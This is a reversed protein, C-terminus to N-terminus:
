KSHQVLKCSTVQATAEDKFCMLAQFQESVTPFHPKRALEVKEHFVYLDGIQGSCAFTETEVDVTKVLGNALVASAMELPEAPQQIADFPYAGKTVTCKALPTQTVGLPIARSSCDLRGAQLDKTCSTAVVSEATTTISPARKVKGVEVNEIVTEVDKIRTLQSHADFCSFIEKNVAITKAANSVAVVNLRLPADPQPSRLQCGQPIPSPSPGAGTAHPVVIVGVAALGAGAVIFLWRVRSMRGARTATM